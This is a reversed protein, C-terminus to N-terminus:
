LKDRLIRYSKESVDILDNMRAASLGTNIRIQSLEILSLRLQQNSDAMIIRQANMQGALVGGTQETLSQYDGRLSNSTKAADKPNKLVDFGSTKAQEVFDKLGQSFAQLGPAAEQYFKLYDDDFRGDGGPSLSNTLDKELNDFYPKLLKTFLLNTVMSELIDEVSTKFAQAADTGEKFANVLNDRLSDGFSGALTKVIEKISAKAEEMQKQWDLTTQLLGKTAEDVGNTSILATALEQNIEVLGNGSDKILEPYQQLLNVFEDAKKKAGGFLSIIGGVVAGIGAGVAATLPALPGGIIAGIAGGTAAGSGIQKLAEKGDIVTKQGAKARGENLKKLSEQYKSQADAYKELGDKLKGTFDRVFVNEKNKTQLGKQENLLVNYQQQRDILSQTFSLEAQKRRQAADVISTFLSVVGQAALAYKEVPDKGTQFAQGIQNVLSPLASLVSGLEGARGDLQALADGFEGVIGAFQSVRTLDDSKLSIDTDDREKLKQQYAQTGVKDKEEKLYKNLEALRKKLAARGSELIVQDLKKYADSAQAARENIEKIEDAEGKNIESLATNYAADKTKKVYQQELALRLDAYHKTVSLRQQEAGTISTLYQALEQKFQQQAGVTRSALEERKKYDDNNTAPTKDLELQKQRLIELYETLSAAESQAKELGERFVDLNTKKGTVANREDTLTGLNKTENESLSGFPQKSELKSIQSNLYDLYSDGSKKLDAFQNNASTQGYAEVWKQYLSYKDRKESLEDDFSKIAIRKRAEEADQEAQIKIGQLTAIRRTANPDSGNIKELAKQARAAIEDYYQASGLPGLKKADKEAAKQARKEAETLEGTMRRKQAELRDIEAKATARAPDSEAKNFALQQAKILEDIQDVSKAITVQNDKQAKDLKKLEDQYRKLNDEANKYALSTKDTENAMVRQQRSINEQIQQRDAAGTYVRTITGEIEGVVKKADADAKIAENLEKKARAAISETYVGMGQNQAQTNKSNKAFYDQANKLREAAKAQQDYADKAKGNLSELQLRQRLAILYDQTAKTLDAVKSKEFTLNGIIDPAISKLKNYAELRQSDAVNQNKLVGILTKIEGSQQRYQSTIEKGSGALIEQASKIKDVEQRFFVIQTVLLAISTGLIVYPNALMTLNLAQTARQLLSSSAALRLQSLSLVNGSLAAAAQQAAMAQTFVLKAREATTVLLLAARYSGYGAVLISLTDIVDQYHETAETAGTIVGAILGQNKKGIDNLMTDYASGLREQLANLSKAQADLTGAFIGGGTTMDQLAKKVEPFGVKGQEVLGRVKDEAVGFQAALSSILPIGSGVFQNLDQAFLRGQTSTTGYLYTLRELPLGLGAAVNGLTQLSPIVDKAAIGYALLQKQANAVEKLGFPTEAAFKVGQRLFEDAASKSRLMTAFSIELSQMESRVRLLQQPLDNLQTFAFVGAAITGLRRFAADFQSTERVATTTLGRIRRESEDMARNFNFNNLEIDFSLAGSTTNM